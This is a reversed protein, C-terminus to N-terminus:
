VKARLQQVLTDVFDEQVPKLSTAISAGDGAGANIQPAFAGPHVELHIYPGSGATGRGAGQL